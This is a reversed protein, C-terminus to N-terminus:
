HKKSIAFQFVRDAAELSEKSDSTVAFYLLALEVEVYNVNKPKGMYTEKGVGTLSNGSVDVEGTPLIRTLEWAVSVEGLIHMFVVPPSLDPARGGFWLHRWGDSPAM